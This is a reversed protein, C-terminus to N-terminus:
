ADRLDTRGVSGIEHVCSRELRDLSIDHGTLKPRLSPPGQIRLTGWSTSPHHTHRKGLQRRKVARNTLRAVHTSSVQKDRKNQLKSHDTKLGLGLAKPGAAL